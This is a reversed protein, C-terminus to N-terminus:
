SKRLNRNMFQYTSVEGLYTVGSGDGRGQEICLIANLTVSNPGGTTVTWSTPLIANVEQTKKEKKKIGRVKPTSLYEIENM